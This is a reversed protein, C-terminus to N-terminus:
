GCVQRAPPTRPPAPSASRRPTAGAAARATDTTRLVRLAPSGPWRHRAPCPRAPVTLRGRASAKSTNPVTTSQRVLMMPSSSINPSFWPSASSQAVNASSQRAPYGAAISRTRAPSSGHNFISARCRRIRSSSSSRVPISETGSSSTSSSLRAHCRSSGHGSETPPRVRRLSLNTTVVSDFPFTDSRVLM